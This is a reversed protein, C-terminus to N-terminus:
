RNFDFVPSLPDSRVLTSKVQMLNRQLGAVCRFDHREDAPLTPRFCSGELTKQAQGGCWGGGGEEGTVTFM